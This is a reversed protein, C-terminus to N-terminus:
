EAIVGGSVAVNAERPEAGMGDVVRGGRIALDYQAM